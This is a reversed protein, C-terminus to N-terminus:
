EEKPRVNPTDETTKKAWGYEREKRIRTRKQEGEALQRPKYTRFYFSTFLVMFTLGVLQGFAVAWVEGSCEWTRFVKVAFFPAWTCMMGFFFQIIQLQTLYKKWWMEYGLTHMFFYYYMFTHVICNEALLIWHSTTLSEQMAWMLFPVIFHHYVHVLMLPKKKLVLLVTDLMEYFKSVYFVWCWFPIPGSRMTGLPHHPDDCYTYFFGKRMGIDYVNILVCILMVLSLICLFLNHILTPIKLVYPRKVKSQLYYIVSLYTLGGIIPAWVSSLPADHFRFTRIYEELM